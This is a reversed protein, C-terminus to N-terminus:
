ARDGTGVAVEWRAKEENDMQHECLTLPQGSAGPGPTCGVGGAQGSSHSQGGGAGCGTPGRSPDAPRQFDGALDARGLAGATSSASTPSSPFSRVSPARLPRCNCVPRASRAALHPGAPERGGGQLGSRGWADVGSLRM